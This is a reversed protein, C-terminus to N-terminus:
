SAMEKRRSFIINSSIHSVWLMDEKLVLHRYVGVRAMGSSLDRRASHVPYTNSTLLGVPQNQGM